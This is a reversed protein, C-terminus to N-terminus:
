RTWIPNDSAGDFSLRNSIGRGIDYVWVDMEGTARKLGTAIRTGDPSLRGTGWPQRNATIPSVGGKRDVWIMTTGQSGNNAATVYVLVGSDSFTYDVTGPPGITSVGEIVPAEPGTTAARKLDFPQAFLTGSRLYLLHGTPAYRVGAGAQGVARYQKTKLDLVGVKSSDFSSGSGITFLVRGDPLFQPMVHATEGNKADVKTVEEPTGGTAPVRWLGRGGSFVITDDPGWAAGSTTVGDCLTVSAGGAVAMKKVKNQSTSYVIWQGDPSFSPFSSNETSPIMKGEFQDMMRLGLHLNNLAGETYALRTGDHSINLFGVFGKQPVLSRLVPRPESAPQRLLGFALGAAAALAAVVWPLWSRKAAPAAVVVAAPQDPADMEIWADGIDRLRRKPDRELCRQLLRRVKPPTDAPPNKLDIDARLVAALTDSVTEGEFMSKGTLMEYLVVGFAWIDARRDVPKGRAQEPSMYAATGMIQGARTSDLTLTPSNAPNGGSIPDADMAKALGFDLVKVKGEPNIKVNAPKLDRHIIGKEHAAELADAIQRAIDLAEDLPITGAAIREALTQGEVLEMVLATAGGSEELGFIAAINPHSLAALVQAERSFRAMRAPDTAFEPPLVKIAVDRNLRSDRARYVEGMGGAGLPATVDFPGLRAGPAISM